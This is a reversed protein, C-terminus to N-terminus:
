LVSAGFTDGSHPLDIVSLLLRRQDSLLYGRRGGHSISWAMLSNGIRKHQERATKACSSGGCAPPRPPRPLSSGMLARVKALRRARWIPGAMIEPRMECIAM